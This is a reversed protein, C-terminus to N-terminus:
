RALHTSQQRRVLCNKSLIEDNIIHTFDIPTVIPTHVHDKNRLEVILM